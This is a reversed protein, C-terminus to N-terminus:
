HIQQSIYIAMLSFRTSPPLLLTTSPFLWFDKVSKLVQGLNDVKLTHLFIFTCRQFDMKNGPWRSLHM